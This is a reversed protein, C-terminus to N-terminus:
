HATMKMPLRGDALATLKLFEQDARLSVFMEDVRAEMMEESRVAAYREYQYFHRRLFALAKDRDGAQAYIAALNYSAAMLGENARAIQLAEDRRGSAAYFVAAFTRNYADDPDLKLAEEVYHATKVPDCESNWFVALNRNALATPFEKVSDEMLHMGKVFAGEHITMKGLGHLAVARSLPDAPQALLAEFVQRAKAWEGTQHRYLEGLFRAPTPDAPDLEHARAYLKGAEDYRGAIEAQLGQKMVAVVEAAVPGDFIPDQEPYPRADATKDDVTVGLKKLRKAAEKARKPFLYRETVVSQYAAIAGAKDGAAAKAKGDALAKVLVDDRQSLENRVLKEVATDRLKGDKGDVRGVLHGTADALVALPLKAPATIVQAIPANGDAIYMTVGQSAYLSLDRSTRLSSMKVENVSAPFWYLFLGHAPPPAKGDFIQWPVQYVEDPAGMGGVGGGGGGGCTAGLPLALQMAIVACVMARFTTSHIPRRPNKRMDVAQRAPRNVRAWVRLPVTVTLGPARPQGDVATKRRHLTKAPSAEGHRSHGDCSRAHFCARQHRDGAHGAPHPQHYLWFVQNIGDALQLFRAESDRQAEEALKRQSIDQTVTICSSPAEGPAAVAAVALSVWIVSGDKRVYRKERTFERISGSRLRALNEWDLDLDEPPTIESFSLRQLEERSYGTIDCYRQNVRAFRGTKLDTQAVGVAAQEFIARLSQESELLNDDRGHPTAEALCSCDPPESM